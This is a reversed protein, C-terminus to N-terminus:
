SGDATSAVMREGRCPRRAMVPLQSMRSFRRRYGNPSRRCAPTEPFPRRLSRAGPFRRRTLALRARGVRAALAGRPLGARAIGAVAGGARAPRLAPVHLRPRPALRVRHRRDRERLTPDHLPTQVELETPRSAQGVDYLTGDMFLLEDGFRRYVAPRGSEIVDKLSLLRRGAPRMAALTREIKHPDTVAILAGHLETSTMHGVLRFTNSAPTTYNYQGQGAGESM